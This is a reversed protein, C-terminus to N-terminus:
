WPLVEGNSHWFTGSNDMTLEEIRQTLREASIKTTIEGSQNTMDTEVWGPHLIAIAVGQAKLDIALSKCAANLACKSMRYGYAGGSSNDAISGMRSTIMALKSGIKLNSHLAEIIRLPGLTNVQFQELMAEYDFNGFSQSKLIGANNILIDIKRNNIVSVLHSLDNANSVDVNQIIEISLNDLEVSTNRCVAIVEHGSGHYKQCLALGIGRNAGTIVIRLHENLQAMAIWREVSYKLVM